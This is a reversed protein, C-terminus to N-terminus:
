ATAAQFRGPERITRAGQCLRRETEPEIKKKIGKVELDYAVRKGALQREGFDPPYSVEFKLQQGASAGRLAANFTDLTNPGGVELM